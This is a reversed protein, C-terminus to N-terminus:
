FLILQVKYALYFWHTTIIMTKTTKLAMYNAGDSFRLENQSGDLTVTGSANLSGDVNLLKILALMLDSLHVLVLYPSYLM